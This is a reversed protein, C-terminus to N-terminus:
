EADDESIDEGKMFTVLRKRLDSNFADGKPQARIHKKLRAGTLIPVEDIEEESSEAMVLEANPNTFVVLPEVPPAEEDFAEDM